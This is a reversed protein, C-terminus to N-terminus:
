TLIITFNLTVSFKSLTSAFLFFFYLWEHLLLTSNDVEAFITPFDEM